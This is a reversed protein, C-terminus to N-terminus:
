KQLSFSLYSPILASLSPRNLEEKFIGRKISDQREKFVPIKDQKGADVRCSGASKCDGAIIDAGQTASVTNWARRTGVISSIM